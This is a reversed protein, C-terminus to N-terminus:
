QLFEPPFPDSIPILVVTRFTEMSRSVAVNFIGRKQQPPRLQISVEIARPLRGNIESDWATQWVHGDFYRFNVAIVEPALVQIQSIQSAAGRNSEVQEIAMREGEARILGTGIASGNAMFSYTVGRLDSSGPTGAM